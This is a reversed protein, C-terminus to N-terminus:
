PVVEVSEGEVVEGITWVPLGSEGFLAPAEAAREAPVAMLLGGSTQPDFLALALEEPLGEPLRVRPGYYRRNRQGGGPFIGRAAYELAGPLLPVASARVRLCAGSLTAMEWAHGLLGYGTIDTVARAGLRRALHSAHRNLSKMSAVAAGLHQPDARGAKAATTLIGTGLPKTLLVVDGPRAGGKTLVQRPHVTGLVCLGYKPERDIVTHGGAIVGGAEAVKDAGGQLIRAVIDPPLDDPFAAVNLAMAVEGGMAYVDSMANAAAIAGYDYPDDVVPAFFDVTLVVALEDSLRYVAADDPSALGVLLDPHSAGPGHEQLHRLV